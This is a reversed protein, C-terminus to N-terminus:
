NQSHPLWGRELAIRRGRQEYRPLALTRGRRVDRVGSTRPPWGTRGGEAESLCRVLTYRGSDHVAAYVRPICGM